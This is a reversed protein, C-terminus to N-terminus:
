ANRRGLMVIRCGGDKALNANLVVNLRVDNEGALELDLGSISKAEQLHRYSAPFTKASAPTLLETFPEGLVAERSRGLWALATDNIQILIGAADLTLYACPANQVLDASLDASKKLASGAQTCADLRAALNANASNLVAAQKEFQQTRLAVLDEIRRRHLRLEEEVLKDKTIDILIGQLLLPSGSEDHVVSAEDLFWRVEGDRNFLRYECRLPGGTARVTDFAELASARDDPHIYSRLAGIHAVWEEPSYGLTSLQPSVYLLKGPTDMAATYTIAPIQEVLIRYRAEAQALRAEMLEKERLSQRERLVRQIVTPLLELYQHHPDKVLYDQAGRKMAEVAVATNDAGTLMIVPVSLNGMVNRLEVLFELGNLDPLQYDLLVCDPEQAQVKQLGERATEAEDLVLEYDQAGRSFSRRCAMRDITDDEVILVHIKPKNM